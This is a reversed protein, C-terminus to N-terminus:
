KPEKALAAADRPSLRILIGEEQTIRLWDERTFADAKDLLREVKGTSRNVKQIVVRGEKAAETLEAILADIEKPDIGALLADARDVAGEMKSLTGDAHAIVPRAQDSTREVSSLTSKAREAIEPLADSAIAANHLLREADNLIRTAREPDAKLADTLIKLAEPDFAKVLPGLSSVLQDIEVPSSITAVAGGDELLPATTSVPTVEVYKEGLVSRARVAVRADQRLQASKQLSLDAVARGEVVGLHEVRGVPVGAVSVVAGETLGSADPFTANVQITTGIGSIAGVQLAMFGLIATAGVVLLGVGVEHRRSM